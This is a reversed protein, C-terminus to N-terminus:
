FSNKPPCPPNANMAQAKEVHECMFLTTSHQKPRKNLDVKKTSFCVIQACKLCHEELRNLCFPLSDLESNAAGCFIQPCKRLKREFRNMCFPLGDLEPNAPKSPLQTLQPTKLM